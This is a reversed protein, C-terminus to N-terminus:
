IIENTKVNENQTTKTYNLDDPKEKKLMLYTYTEKVLYYFSRIGNIALIIIMVFLAGLLAGFAIHGSNRRDFIWGLVYSIGVVKVGEAAVHLVSGILSYRISLFIAAGWVGMMVNESLNGGKTAFSGLPEIAVFFLIVGWGYIMSYLLRQEYTFRSLFKEFM